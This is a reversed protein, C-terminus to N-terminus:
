SASIRTVTAEIRGQAPKILIEDGSSLKEANRIVNGDRDTVMSYGRNFITQPNCNELTQMHKEIERKKEDIIDKMATVLDDYARDFRESARQEIGQLRSKMNEPDFARLLLRLNEIRNEMSNYIDNKLYELDDIITRKEPIALEAAASPTPARRDASFDSLAWDIDHGVASIVPIDSNYIAKVVSEESFCLLDETSGGGRGVILLDCMKYENAVKIMYSINDAATEGQVLTPFIIINVKDNRRKRINLIDRLAAGNSATVVGITKSFFPIPKKHESNFYGEESLKKKREEIMELINGTGAVTMSTVVLQYSGRPEYVSLKGRVQVLMGDKPAFNLMSASGRFMVASIQAGSDKLSFYLHGSTSPKFNSLEGKLLISSFSGELMTKILLTLQTVTLANDTKKTQTDNMSNM